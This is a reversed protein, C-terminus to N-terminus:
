GKKVCPALIALGKSGKRVYRGLKNWAKYGMVYTAEPNQLFIMITNGFSYQYFLSQFRLFSIWDEDNNITALGQEIRELAAKIKDANSM